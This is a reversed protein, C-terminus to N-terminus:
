LLPLEKIYQPITEIKHPFLFLAVEINNSNKIAFIEKGLVFDGKIQDFIDDQVLRLEKTAHSSLWNTTILIHADHALQESKLKAAIVQLAFYKMLLQQVASAACCAIQSTGLGLSKRLFIYFIIENPAM